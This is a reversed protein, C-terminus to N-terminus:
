FALLLAASLLSSLALAALANTSTAVGQMRCRLPDLIQPLVSTRRRPVGPFETLFDKDSEHAICTYGKLNEALDPSESTTVLSAVDRRGDCNEVLAFGVVPVRDYVTGFGTGENRLLAVYGSPAPVLQHIFPRFGYCRTRTDQHLPVGDVYVLPVDRCPCLIGDREAPITSPGDVQEDHRQTTTM